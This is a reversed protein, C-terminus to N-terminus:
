ARRSAEENAGSRLRCRAPARDTRATPPPQFTLASTAAPMPASNALMRGFKVCTSGSQHPTYPQNKPTAIAPAAYQSSEITMALGMGTAPLARDRAAVQAKV